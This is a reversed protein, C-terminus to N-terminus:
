TTCAKVARAADIRDMQAAIIEASNLVGRWDPIAGDAVGGLAIKEIFADKLQESTLTDLTLLSNSRVRAVAVDDPWNVGNSISVSPVGLSAAEYVTLRNTKTIVVDSAVMLRDITWDEKLVQIEDIGAFHTRVREYDKGGLWILRASSYPLARWAALVMDMIPVEAESWNGPMCTLLVCERPVGLEDRARSKHERQYEFHRVAPGVYRVKNRLYPPETFIGSEATFIVEAAYRMATMHVAYPDEFFDTIFVSPIGLTKASVLAAFEEHAVVLQPKLSGIVRTELIIMDLFSPSDPMHLDIIDYGCAKLAEAGGSYSVFRIKSCPKLLQLERAIAMDPVAHGRGRGRCVFVINFARQNLAESSGITHSSAAREDTTTITM